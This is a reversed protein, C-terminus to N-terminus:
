FIVVATERAKKCILLLTNVRCMEEGEQLGPVPLVACNEYAFLHGVHTACYIKEM